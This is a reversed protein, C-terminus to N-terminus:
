PGIERDDSPSGQNSSAPKQVVRMHFGLMAIAISALPNLLCFFTFGAYSLTPVGLTVAM